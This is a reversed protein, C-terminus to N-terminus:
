PRTLEFNASPHTGDVNFCANPGEPIECLRKGYPDLAYLKWGACPAFIEAELSDISLKGKLIHKKGEFHSEDNGCAGVATILICGSGSLSRENM